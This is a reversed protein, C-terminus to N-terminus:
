PLDGIQITGNQNHPLIYNEKLLVFCRFNILMVFCVSKSDYLSTAMFLIKDVQSVCLIKDLGLM